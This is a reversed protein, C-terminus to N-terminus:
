YMPNYTVDRYLESALDAARQDRPLACNEHYDCSPCPSKFSLAVQPFFGRVLCGIFDAIHAKMNEEFEDILDPHYFYNRRNYETGKGTRTPARVIVADLMLGAVKQETLKQLAWCYGRTQLSLRFNEEFEQGGRSSTKRDVAWILPNTNIAADVRGTYLVHINRIYFSESGNNETNAVILSKPYPVQCGVPLTMLPIKFPREIFPAGAFQLIQERFGDTKYRKEYGAMVSEMMQGNRHDTASPPYLKFHEEIREVKEKAFEETYGIIVSRETLKHFLHGFNMATQDRTGERGHISYNEAMRPCIMFHSASSYDFEMVYDDAHDPSQTLLKRQPYSPRTPGTQQIDISLPDLM